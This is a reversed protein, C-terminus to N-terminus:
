VYIARGGGSEGGIWGPRLLCPNRSLSEDCKQSKGGGIGVRASSGRMGNRGFACSQKDAIMELCSPDLKCTLVKPKGGRMRKKVFIQNTQERKKALATSTSYFTFVRGLGTAPDTSSRGVRVFVGM